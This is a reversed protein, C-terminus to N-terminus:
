LVKQLRYLQQELELERGRGQSIQKKCAQVEQEHERTIARHLVLAVVESAEVVRVLMALEEREVANSQRHAVVVMEIEALQEVVVIEVVVQGAVVVANEVDV